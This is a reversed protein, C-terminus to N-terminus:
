SRAARKEFYARADGLDDADMKPVWQDCSVRFRALAEASADELKDDSEDFTVNCPEQKQQRKRERHEKVRQRTSERANALVEYAEGCNCSANAEAGCKTCAMRQISHVIQLRAM